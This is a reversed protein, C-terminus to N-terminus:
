IHMSRFNPDAVSNTWMDDFVRGWDRGEVPNRFCVEGEYRDGFRRVITGIRDALLLGTNFNFYEQGFRRIEIFTSLRQSALILRHGRLIAQTPDRVLVRVRGRGSRVLFARVADSIDRNNLIPLDFERTVIDVSRHAQALMSLAANRNGLSSDVLFREQTQGLMFGEFETRTPTIM